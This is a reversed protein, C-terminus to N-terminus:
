GFGSTSFSSGGSSGQPPLLTVRNIFRKIGNNLEISIDLVGLNESLIEGSNNSRNMVVEKRVIGRASQVDDLYNDIISSIRLRTTEDNFDGIFNLLIREIDREITILTDRNSLNNLASDVQQYATLDTYIMRGFGRRSVILNHGVQELNKRDEDTFEYEIGVVEPESIVGYKAMVPRYQNGRSFKRIYANSVYAAPPVSINKSNERVILNPMFYGVYSGIPNGDLEGSVLEFTRSPNLRLNGGEAIYDTRVIQTNLDVFSPDTSEEFQEISPDNLLALMQKHSAAIASLYYKSENTDAGGFSGEYSDVLYRVNISQGNVITDAINTDWLFKHIEEQRQSTGDPLIANRIKFDKLYFGKLSDVFNHIGKYFVIKKGNHTDIGSIEETSPNVTTINLVGSSPSKSNSGAV